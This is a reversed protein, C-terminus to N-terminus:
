PDLLLESLDGSRCDEIGTLDLEACPNYIIAPQGAPGGSRGCAATLGASAPAPMVALSAAVAAVAVLSRLVARSGPM